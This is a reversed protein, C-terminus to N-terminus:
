QPTNIASRVIPLVAVRTTQDTKTNGKPTHLDRKTYIPRKQHTYTEHSSDTVSEVIPVVAVRM